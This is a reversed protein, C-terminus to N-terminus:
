GTITEHYLSCLALLPILLEHSSHPFNKMKVNEEEKDIVSKEKERRFIYNFSSNSLLSLSLSLFFLLKIDPFSKKFLYKLGQM